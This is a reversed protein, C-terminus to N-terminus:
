PLNVVVIFCRSGAGVPAEWSAAAYGGAVSGKHLQVRSWRAMSSSAYVDDGAATRCSLGRPPFGYRLVPLLEALFRGLSYALSLLTAAIM